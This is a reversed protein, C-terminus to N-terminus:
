APRSADPVGPPSDRRSCLDHRARDVVRGLRQVCPDCASGCCWRWTADDRDLHHAVFATYSADVREDALWGAIRARADATLKAPDM